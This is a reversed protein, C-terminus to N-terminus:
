CININNKDSLICWFLGLNHTGQFNDGIKCQALQFRQWIDIKFVKRFDWSQVWFKAGGLFWMYIKSISFYIVSIWCRVLISCKTLVYEEDFTEVELINGM